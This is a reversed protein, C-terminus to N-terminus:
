KKDNNDGDESGPRRPGEDRRAESVSARSQDGGEESKAAAEAVFGANDGGSTKKRLEQQESPNVDEAAFAPSMVLLALTIIWVTLKV